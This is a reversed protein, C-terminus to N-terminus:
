PRPKDLDGTCLTTYLLEFACIRMYVSNMSQNGSASLIESVCTCVANPTCSRMGHAYRTHVSYYTCVQGCSVLCWGGLKKWGRGCRSAPKADDHDPMTAM